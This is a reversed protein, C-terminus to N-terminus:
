ITHGPAMIDSLPPIYILLTVIQVYGAAQFAETILLLSEHFGIVIIYKHGYMLLLNFIAQIHCISLLSPVADTNFGKKALRSYIVIDRIRGL